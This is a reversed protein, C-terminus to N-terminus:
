VHARGIKLIQWQTKILDVFEITNIIGHGIAKGAIVTSFCEICVCLCINFLITKNILVLINILFNLLFRVCSVVGSDRKAEGKLCEGFKKVTLNEREREREECKVCLM